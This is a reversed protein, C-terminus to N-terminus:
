GKMKAEIKSQIKGLTPNTMYRGCAEFRDRGWYNRNKEFYLRQDATGDEKRILVIRGGVDFMGAVVWAIAGDKGLVQPLINTETEGEDDDSEIIMPLATACLNMPLDVTEQMTRKFENQWKQHDQIQPIDLDRETPKKKFEMRLIHRLHITQLANVSDLTVWDFPIGDKDQAAMELWKKAKKFKLWTSCDWIKPKYGRSVASATGNETRLILGRESASAGFPTKGAGSEGIVLLKVHEGEAELDIIDDPLEIAV